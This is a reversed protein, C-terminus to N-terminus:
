PIPSSVTNYLKRYHRVPAGHLEAWRTYFAESHDFHDLHALEHTMVARRMDRPMFLLRRSLTIEGRSSCTGLKTNNRSIKIGTVRSLLRKDSAIQRLEDVLVKQSKVYAYKQILKAIVAENGTLGAHSPPAVIRLEAKDDALVPYASVYGVREGASEMVKIRVIDNEFTYGDYYMSSPAAVPKMAMIDPMMGDLIVNFSDISLGPPICIHLVDAKWRATVRRATKLVRVNVYGAVPHLFKQSPVVKIVM